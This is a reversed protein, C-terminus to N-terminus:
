RILLKGSAFDHTGMVRYVYVGSALLSLDFSKHRQFHEDIVISGNSNFLMFRVAEQSQGVEVRIFDRAPNPFLQVEIKPLENVSTEPSFTSYHMSEINGFPMGGGFFATYNVELLQSRHLFDLNRYVSPLAIDSMEISTNYTYDVQNIPLLADEIADYLLTLSSTANGVEDFEYTSSFQERWGEDTMIFQQFSAQVDFANYTYNIRSIPNPMGDELEYFRREVELGNEYDVESLRYAEWNENDPNWQDIEILTLADSIYNYTMRSENVLQGSDSNYTEAIQTEIAGDANYEYTYRLLITYISSGNALGYISHQDVQADPTYAYEEGSEPQWAETNENWFFNTRTVILDADNYTLSSRTEDVYVQNAADWGQQIEETPLGSESYTFLTRSAPTHVNQIPDYVRFESRIVDGMESYFYQTVNNSASVISDLQYTFPSQGFSTSHLLVATLLVFARTIIKM